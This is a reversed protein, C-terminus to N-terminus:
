TLIVNLVIMYCVNKTPQITSTNVCFIMTMNTSVKNAFIQFKRTLPQLGKQSDWESELTGYKQPCVGKGYQCNKKSFHGINAKQKNSRIFQSATLGSGSAVETLSPQIWWSRRLRSNSNSFKFIVSTPSFITTTEWSLTIYISLIYGVGPSISQPYSQSVSRERPEWRKDQADAYCIIYKLEVSLSKIFHIVKEM